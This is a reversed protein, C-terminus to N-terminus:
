VIVESLETEAILVCMVFENTNFSDESKGLLPKSIFRM